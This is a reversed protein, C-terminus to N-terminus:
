GSNDQKFVGSPKYGVANVGLTPPLIIQRVEGVAMGQLSLDWRPPLYDDKGGDKGGELLPNIVKKDSGLVFFINAECMPSDRAAIPIVGDILEGTDQIKLNFSIEVIDGKSAVQSPITESPLELRKVSLVQPAFGNVNDTPLILTKIEALSLQGSVGGSKRNLQQTDNLLSFFMDPDRFTLMLDRQGIAGKIATAVEDLRRGQINNGNIDRLVYGKSVSNKIVDPASDTVSNVIILPSSSSRPRYEKLGLGLMEEKSSLIVSVEDDYVEVASRTESTARAQRTVLTSTLLVSSVSLWKHRLNAYLIERGSKGDTQSLCFTSKTSEPLHSFFCESQLVVSILITILFRMICSVFFLKALLSRRTPPDLRNGHYGRYGPIGTLRFVQTAEYQTSASARPAEIVKSEM